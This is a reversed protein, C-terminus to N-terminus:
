GCFLQPLLVSLHSALYIPPFLKQPALLPFYIFSSPLLSKKVVIFVSVNSNYTDLFVLLFCRFFYKFLNYVFVEMIHSLFYNGLDLFCLLNWIPYVWPSACWSVYSDFYYFNFAFFFILLLLSFAVFVYLTIQM